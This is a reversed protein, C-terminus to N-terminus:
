FWVRIPVPTDVTSSATSNNAIIFVTDKNKIISIDSGKVIM